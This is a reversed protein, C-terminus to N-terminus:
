RWLMHYSYQTTFGYEVREFTSETMEPRARLTAEITEPAAQEDIQVM